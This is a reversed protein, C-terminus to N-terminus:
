LPPTGDRDQVSAGHLQVAVSLGGMDIVIHHKRGVIKKGTDFGRPGGSETTKVSQSDIIGASPFAARGAAKRMRMPLARLRRLGSGPDSALDISVTM